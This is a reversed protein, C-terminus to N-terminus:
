CNTQFERVQEVILEAPVELLEASHPPNPLIVAACVEDPRFRAAGEQIRDKQYHIQAGEEQRAQIHTNLQEIIHTQWAEDDERQPWNEIDIIKFGQSYFMQIVFTACTLGAFNEEQTFTGDRAFGTGEICIGYPIGDPNSEVVLQCFTAMHTQNLVDLASGYALYNDPLPRDRMIYHWALDLFHLQNRSNSYVIGTHLQDDSVIRIAIGLKEIDGRSQRLIKAFDM